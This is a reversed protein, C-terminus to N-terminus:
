NQAQRGRSFIMIKTKDVNVKLKWITCYDDFAYLLMQLEEPSEAMLVTDDAYLLILLNLYIDFNDEIDQSISDLGKLNCTGLFSELDNL